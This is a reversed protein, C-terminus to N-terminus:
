EYYHLLWLITKIKLESEPCFIDKRIQPQPMMENMMAVIEQVETLKQVKSSLVNIWNNM